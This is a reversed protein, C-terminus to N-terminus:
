QQWNRYNYNDPVPSAYGALALPIMTNSVTGYTVRYHISSKTVLIKQVAPDIGHSRFVELDFPQRPISTILVLNGAIEVVATNGQDAVMGHNMPGKLVYKGDTLKKVVATVALPGGSYRSDSWGGLQLNVQAGVGAAICLDVSAPDLITAVAAGTIKRQLIRRLIHTTDGVGGAGPNDSADALVVTGSEQLAIDLAEDLTTYQAKLRPLHTKIAESLTDAIQEALVPDADTIAIVAMGMEAIDAPFFGHSFRLSLVGPTKELEAALDYLPKLEPSQSPLLPMLYPIRRYAMTPRHIGDLTKEMLLAAKKGTEYIDVHPYTNYPILGNTYRAMKETVNAHLDLSAMIPIESGLEQRLLEIFDGEGDPHGEAVMAGHIDLLVGDIKDQTRIVQLVKKTVFDYVDGTVPGSPMACLAVSPILEIDQRGEFVDLFASMETGNNRVHTFVENGVLCRFNKYAQMDAPNPCFSNTEHRFEITLIKKTL